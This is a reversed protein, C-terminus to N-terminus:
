RQMFRRTEGREGCGDMNLPLCSVRAAMQVDYWGCAAFMEEKRMAERTTADVSDNGDGHGGIGLHLTWGRESVFLQRSMIINYSVRQNIM